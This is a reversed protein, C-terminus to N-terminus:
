PKNSMNELRLRKINFKKIGQNLNNEGSHSPGPYKNLPLDDNSIKFEESM